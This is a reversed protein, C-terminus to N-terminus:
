VSEVSQEDEITPQVDELKHPSTKSRWSMVLSIAIAAICFVGLCVFIRTYGGNDGYKVLWDGFITQLFVDPLYAILSCFGVATAAYLVPINLENLISWMIGYLMISFGSSIM